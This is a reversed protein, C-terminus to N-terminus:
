GPKKSEGRQGACTPQVFDAAPLGSCDARRNGYRTNKLTVKAKNNYFGYPDPAFCIVEQEDSQPNDMPDYDALDVEPDAYGGIISVSGDASEQGETLKNLVPTVVVNVVGDGNLDSVEGFYTSLNSVINTDVIDAVLELDCNDFGYANSAAEVDIDGDCLTGILPCARTSGYTSATLKPGFRAKWWRIPTKTMWLTAFGFSAELFGNEARAAGLVASHCSTRFVGKKVLM